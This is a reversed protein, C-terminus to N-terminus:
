HMNNLPCPEVVNIYQWVRWRSKIEFTGEARYEPDDNDKEIVTAKLPVRPVVKIMVQVSHVCTYGKEGDCYNPVFIACITINKTKEM